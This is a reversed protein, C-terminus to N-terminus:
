RKRIRHKCVHSIAELAIADIGPQAPPVNARQTASTPRAIPTGGGLPEGPAVGAVVRM